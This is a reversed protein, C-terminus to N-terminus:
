NKRSKKLAVEWIHKEKGYRDMRDETVRIRQWKESILTDIDKVDFFRKKGGECAYYHRELEKGKGAGYNSDSLSNVRFLFIGNEELIGAIEDMIEMTRGWPFYHISLDAVVVGFSGAEFPLRKRMDHIITRADPFKKRIYAIATTSFDCSITEIGNQLLFNTANGLGCGLDLAPGKVAEIHPLYRELWADYSIEMGANAFLINWKLKETDM